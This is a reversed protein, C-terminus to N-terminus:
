AFSAFLYFVTTPILAVGLRIMFFLISDVAFLFSHRPESIQFLNYGDESAKIFNKGRLAIQYYGFRNIRKTVKSLLKSFSQLWNDIIKFCKNYDHYKWRHGFFILEM